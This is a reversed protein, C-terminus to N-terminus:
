LFCCVWKELNQMAPEGLYTYIIRQILGHFLVTDHVLPVIKMQFEKHEMNGVSAWNTQDLFGHGIQEMLSGCIM